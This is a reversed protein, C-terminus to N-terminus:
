KAHSFNGVVRSMTQVTNKRFFVGFTFIQFRLPINIYGAHTRNLQTHRVQICVKDIIRYILLTFATYHLSLTLGRVNPIILQLIMCKDHLLALTKTGTIFKHPHSDSMLHDFNCM